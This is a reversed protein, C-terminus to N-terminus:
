GDVRSPAALLEGGPGMTKALSERLAAPQATAVVVSGELALGRSM